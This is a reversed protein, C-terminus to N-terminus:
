EDEPIYLLKHLNPDHVYEYDRIDNSFKMTLDDMVDHLHNIDKLWFDLELDYYGIAKDIMALHPNYKIYNIIKGRENYDNLNINVKYCHYGIKPFNINIRYAQIIDKQILDNIRSLVTNTSIELNKSLEITPIRPNISLLKLIKLDIENIEIRKGGGTIYIIERDTKKYDKILFSHRFHYLKIYDFFM